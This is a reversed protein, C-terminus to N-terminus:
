PASSTQKVADRSMVLSFQCWDVFWQRKGRKPRGPREEEAFDFAVGSRHHLLLAFFSAFFSVGGASREHFKALYQQVLGLKKVYVFYNSNRQQNRTNTIIGVSMVLFKPKRGM